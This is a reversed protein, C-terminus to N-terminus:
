ELKIDAKSLLDSWMASEDKVRRLLDASGESAVIIGGNKLLSRVDLLALVSVISSEIEARVPEPTKKAVLVAFWASTDFGPLGSEAVTPVDPLSDSREITTVALARLKGDQIPALVTPLNDFMLNIQGSLLDRVAPASGKYPIHLLKVGARQQFLEGTLHGNSGISQSGYTLQGPKSKALVILEAITKAPISPHVVVVNPVFGIRTIPAFDQEFDIQKRTTAGSLVLRSSAVALLTAGDADARAVQNIGISGNGGPRNEVIVRQHWRDTLKQAIVRALIDTSGGAQYPVVFTVTRSPYQQGHAAVGWTAVALLGMLSLIGRLKM